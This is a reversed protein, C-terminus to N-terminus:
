NGQAARRERWKNFRYLTPALVKEYLAEALPRGLRSDAIRALWRMKPLRRWILTFADVGAHLHGEADVTHLRKIADDRSLGQRELAEPEATVDRWRIAAGHKAAMTKYSAVERSCVPCDGNYLVTIGREDSM